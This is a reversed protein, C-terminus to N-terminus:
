FTSGTCICFCSYDFKFQMAQIEYGVRQTPSPEFVFVIVTLKQQGCKQLEEGYVEDKRRESNINWNSIENWSVCLKKNFEGVKKKETSIEICDKEVWTNVTNKTVKLM